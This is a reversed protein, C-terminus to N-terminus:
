PNVLAGGTFYFWTHGLIVWAISLVRIGNFVSTGDDKGKTTPAMLQKYNRVCGFAGLFRM